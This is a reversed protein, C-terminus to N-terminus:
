GFKPTPGGDFFEKELREWLHKVNRLRNLWPTKDASSPYIYDLMLWDYNRFEIVSLAEPKELAFRKVITRIDKLLETPVPEFKKEVLFDLASLYNDAWANARGESGTSLRRLSNIENAGYDAKVEGYLGSKKARRKASKQEDAPFTLEIDEEVAKQRKKAIDNIRKKAREQESKVYQITDDVRKTAGPKGLRELSKIFRDLEQRTSIYKKEFEYELKRPLQLDPNRKSVRELRRNYRNIAQKLTAQQIRTWRIPQKM